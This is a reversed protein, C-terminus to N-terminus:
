NEEMWKELEKRAKISECDPYVKNDEKYSSYDDKVGVGDDELMYSVLFMRGFREMEKIFYELDYLFDDVMSDLEEKSKPIYAINKVIEQIMKRKAESYEEVLFDYNFDMYNDIEFRHAPGLGSIYKGDKYLSLENGM